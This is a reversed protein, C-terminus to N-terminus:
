KPNSIRKKGLIAVELIDEKIQSIIVLSSDGQNKFKFDGTPGTIKIRQIDPFYRPGDVDLEFKLEEKSVGAKMLADLITAAVQNIGPTYKKLRYGDEELNYYFSYEPFHVDVKSDRKPIYINNNAKVAAKIASLQAPQNLTTYSRAIVANVDALDQLSAKPRQLQYEGNPGEKMMIPGINGKQLEVKMTQLMRDPFLEFGFNEQKKEIQENKLLIFANQPLRDLKNKLEVIKKELLKEDYTLIAEVKRETKRFIGQARYYVQLFPSDGLIANFSKEKDLRIGIADMPIMYTKEDMHITINRDKIFNPYHADIRDTAEKLTLGSLNLNGMVLGYPISNQTFFSVIWASLAMMMFSLICITLSIIMRKKKDEM